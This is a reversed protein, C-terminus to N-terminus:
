AEARCDSLETVQYERSSFYGKFCPTMSSIPHLYKQTPLQPLSAIRGESIPNSLNDEFCSRIDTRMVTNMEVKKGAAM